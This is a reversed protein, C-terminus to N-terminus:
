GGKIYRDSYFVQTFVAGYLTKFAEKCLTCRCFGKIYKRIVRDSLCLVSNKNLTNCM